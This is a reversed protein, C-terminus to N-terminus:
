LEFCNGDFLGCHRVSRVACYQQCHNAHCHLYLKAWLSHPNVRPLDTDLVGAAGTNYRPSYLCRMLMYKWHGLYISRAYPLYSSLQLFRLRYGHRRAYRLDRCQRFNHLPSPSPQVTDRVLDRYWSGNGHPLLRHNGLRLITRDLRYPTSDSREGSEM